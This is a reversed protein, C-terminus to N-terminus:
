PYTVSLLLETASVGRGISQKIGAGPAATLMAGANGLWYTTGAVLGTLRTVYGALLLYQVYDGIAGGTLAIGDAPRPTDKDALRLSGTSSINILQGRTIAAAAPLRCLGPSNAADAQQQGSFALVFDQFTQLNAFQALVRGIAM